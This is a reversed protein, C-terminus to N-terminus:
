FNLKRRMEDFYGRLYFHKRIYFQNSFVRDLRKEDFIGRLYCHLSIHVPLRRNKKTRKHITYFQVRRLYRRGTKKDM